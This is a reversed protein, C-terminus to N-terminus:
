KGGANILVANIWNVEYECFGEPLKWDGSDILSKIRTLVKQMEDAANHKPCYEILITSTTFNDTFNLRINTTKHEIIKCGCPMTAKLTDSMKAEM